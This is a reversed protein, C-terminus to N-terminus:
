DDEVEAYEPRTKLYTYIAALINNGKEELAEPSFFKNWEKDDFYTESKMIGKETKKFYSDQDVIFCIDGYKMKDFAWMQDEEVWRAIEGTRGKWDGQARDPIIYKDKDENDVPPKRTTASLVVPYLGEGDLFYPVKMIQDAKNEDRFVVVYFSVHRRHKDYTIDEIYSYSGDIFLNRLAM